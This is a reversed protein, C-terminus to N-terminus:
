LSGKRKLEQVLIEQATKISVVAESTAKMSETIQKLLAPAENHLFELNELNHANLYLAKAHRTPMDQPKGNEINIEIQNPHSKDGNKWIAEAIPKQTNKPIQLKDATDESAEEDTCAWEIGDYIRLLATKIAYKAEYHAALQLFIRKANHLIEYPNEGLYMEKLWIILKSRSTFQATHTPRRDHAKGRADYNLNARGETIAFVAGYKHPTFLPTQLKPKVVEVGRLPPKVDGKLRYFKPYKTYAEIIGKKELEGVIQSIRARSKKLMKAIHAQRKGELLLALVRHTINLSNKSPPKVDKMCAFLSLINKNTRM